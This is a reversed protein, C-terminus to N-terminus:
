APAATLRRRKKIKRKVLWTSVGTVALLLPVLGFVFWFVRVWPNFSQGYHLLPAGWVDLIRNSLTPASGYDDVETRAANHRDVEVGYQGPYSTYRFPDFGPAFYIDYVSTQDDPDPSFLNKVPAGPPAVKRAAALAQAPTIDPTGKPVKASSFPEDKPHVGGTVAYWAHSVWPFEFSAGTFAWTLLFPVAVLGALQHLDYDRAFRGRSWRVRFGHSFRRLSPWWLWLGSLALFGLLLGAVGLVFSSVTVGSLWGMGLAPMSANLFGLYAPYDDCTFFCEHVQAMFAMVGRDPDAHGTIRGSGPDVGYFGPHADDDLAYVEYLGHYVNVSGAHFQPHARDVIQMAQVVGIPHQSETVRYVDQNTWRKWEPAYVVAAGSTTIVLLVLGLALSLWRHTVITAFKAKRRLRRRRPTTSSM